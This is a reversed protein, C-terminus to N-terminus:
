NKSLISVSTAKFPVGTCYLGAMIPAYVSGSYGTRVELSLTPKSGQQPFCQTVVFGGGPMEFRCGAESEAPQVIGGGLASACDQSNNFGLEIFASSSSSNFVVFTSPATLCVHCTPSVQVDMFSTNTYVKMDVSIFGRNDQVTYNASAQKQAAFDQTCAKYDCASADVRILLNYPIDTTSTVQATKANACAFTLACVCFLGLIYKMRPLARRVVFPLFRRVCTTITNSTEARHFELGCFQM